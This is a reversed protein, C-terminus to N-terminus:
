ALLKGRGNGADVDFRIKPVCLSAPPIPPQAASASQIVVSDPIRAQRQGPHERAPRGRPLDEGAHERAMVDTRAVYRDRQPRRPEPNIEVFAARLPKVYGIFRPQEAETVEALRKHPVKTKERAGALTYRHQM